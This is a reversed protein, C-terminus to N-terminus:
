FMRSLGGAQIVSGAVIQSGAEILLKLPLYTKTWAHSQIHNSLWDM